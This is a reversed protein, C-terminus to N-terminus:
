PKVTVIKSKIIKGNKNFPVIVVEIGTSTSYAAVGVSGRLASYSVGTFYQVVQNVTTYTNDSNSFVISAGTKASLNEVNIVSTEKTYPNQMIDKDAFNDALEREFLAVQSSDYNHIIGNTYAVVTRMNTDVGAAKVNDKVGGIKPVVITAIFAMIMVAGLLEVLTFRKKM